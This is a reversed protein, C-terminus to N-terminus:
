LMQWVVKESLADGQMRGSRNVPQFIYGDVVDAPGTSTDIAVKVRAPVPVTRIRGHKGILDVICCRGDRRQVHAMRRALHGGQRGSSGSRLVEELLNVMLYAVRLGVAAACARLPLAM